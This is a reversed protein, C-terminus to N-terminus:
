GGAAANVVNRISEADLPSLEGTGLTDIIHEGLAVDLRDVSEEVWAGQGMWGPVLVAAQEWAQGIRATWWRAAADIPEAITEMVKVGAATLGDMGLQTAVQSSSLGKLQADNRVYQNSRAAAGLRQRARDTAMVTAGALESSLAADMDALLDSLNPTKTAATVPEDAAVNAPDKDAGTGGIPIGDEEPPPAADEPIGLVERTYKPNVLGNERAWKVDEVSQKRALMKSPNPLVKVKVDPLLRNLADQAVQAVLLAPPEIHARYSNEEVQFATARSQAQMGMLVEPPVPLGWGLRRIAQEIKRDLVDDYGFPPLVWDIAGDKVEQSSAQLRVPSMDDPDAMRASLTENWIDWFSEGNPGTLTDATVVVGNILVRQKSQTSSQRTLWALAELVELIRTIPPNPVKPNAPHPVIFPVVDAAAKLTERRKPEITSVVRWGDDLNAYDGKGAVFNNVDVARINTDNWNILDLLEMSAATQDEEGNARRTSIKGETVVADDAKPNTGDDDPVTVSWKASGDIFVDWELRAM